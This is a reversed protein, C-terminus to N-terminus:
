GRVVSEASQTPLQSHTDVWHRRRDFAYTPLDVYQAGTGAFHAEWNVNTGAAWQAAATPGGAGAECPGLDALRELQAAVVDTDRGVAYARHRLSARGTALTYAVDLLPLDRQVRLHNALRSAQRHMGAEDHGSVLFALPGPARDPALRAISEPAQEIIVHVNTGSMGFAHVAARRPVERTPWDVPQTLLRVPASDWDVHRSPRDVHLTRPLREHRLAMVTKIVGAMGGAAMAHGINSKISGLHLPRTPNRGRGYVTLLAHAEVPDGLVTGMGHAEVADIEAPTVGAAQLAARMVREQSLGNPATLGNSTGDQNVASGRVMALIRRGNRRADSLRELVLVGVGEGWGAGDASDAFSKCRGDRSLAFLRQRGFQVFMWPTALVMAGGALAMDCEGARLAQSALHLACLSSSCATDISVAPGTLGLEHATRGSIMSNANGTSFFGEETEAVAGFLLAAYHQANVGVYVGTATGRRSTPDIRADELAEWAGELMLRQQPDMMRAEEDGIGFFEGDFCVADSVFGGGTPHTTGGFEWGRDDPFGVVGDGGEDVLRWLAGPSDAGGAFRCSMGVIAIPERKRGELEKLRRRAEHLELMSRRLLEVPKDTHTV